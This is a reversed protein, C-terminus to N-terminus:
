RCTTVRDSHNGPGVIFHDQCNINVSDDDQNALIAVVIVGGTIWMATKKEEASMESWTACGTLMICAMVMWIVKWFKM